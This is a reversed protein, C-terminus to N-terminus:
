SNVHLDVAVPLATWTWGTHPQGPQWEGYKPGVLERARIAEESEDAVIRGTGQLLLERIRIRVAPQQEINRVWDATHRGGALMYLTSGDLAFWIEIEHPKGSIRGTTTLYCFREAAYADLDVDM